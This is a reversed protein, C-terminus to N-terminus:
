LRKLLLSVNKLPISCLSSKRIDRQTMKKTSISNRKIGERKSLGPQWFTNLFRNIGVPTSFVFSLVQREVRATKIAQIAKFPTIEAHKVVCVNDVFTYKYEDAECIGYAIHYANQEEARELSPKHLVSATNRATYIVPVKCHHKSGQHKYVVNQSVAQEAYRKKQHQHPFNSDADMGFAKRLFGVATKGASVTGFLKAVVFFLKATKYFLVLILKKDLAVLKKTFFFLNNQNRKLKRDYFIGM